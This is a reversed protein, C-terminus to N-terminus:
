STIKSARCSRRRTTSRSLRRRQIHGDVVVVGRGPPALDGKHEINDYASFYIWKTFFAPGFHKIKDEGYTSLRRYAEVPGLEQSAIHSRLLTDAANQEHLPKACRAVRQAKSGTGWSCM